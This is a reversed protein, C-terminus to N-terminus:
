ASAETEASVERSLSSAGARIFAESCQGCFFGGKNHYKGGLATLQHVAPKGCWECIEGAPAVEITVPARFDFDNISM